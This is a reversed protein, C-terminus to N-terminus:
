DCSEFVEALSKHVANGNKTGLRESIDLHRTTWATQIAEFLSFRLHRYLLHHGHFCDLLHPWYAVKISALKTGLITFFQQVYSCYKRIQCDSKHFRIKASLTKQRTEPEASMKPELSSVDGRRSAEASPFTQSQRM